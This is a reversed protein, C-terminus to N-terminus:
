AASERIKHPLSALVRHFRSPTVTRQLKVLLEGFNEAGEGDTYRVLAIIYALKADDGAIAADVAAQFEQRLPAADDIFYYQREHVSISAAVPVRRPASTCGTLILLAIFFRLM